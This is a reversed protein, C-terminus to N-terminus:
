RRTKLGGGSGGDGAVGLHLPQGPNAVVTGPAGPVDIPAKRARAAHGLNKPSTQAVSTITYKPFHFYKQSQQLTVPLYDTAVPQRDLPRHRDQLAAGDQAGQPVGQPTSPM